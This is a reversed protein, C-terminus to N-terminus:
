SSHVWECYLRNNEDRLWRAVLPRTEPQSSSTSSQQQPAALPASQTSLASKRTLLTTM